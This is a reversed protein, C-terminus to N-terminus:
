AGMDIFPWISLYIIAAALLLVALYRLPADMVRQWLSPLDGRGRARRYEARVELQRQRAYDRLLARALEAQSDNHLWIGAVSFGWRGASTEYFDLEHDVLLQRVEDAERPEVDNLRFILVSM